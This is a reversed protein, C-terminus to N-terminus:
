IAASGQIELALRRVCSKTPPPPEGDYEWCNGPRHPREETLCALQSMLIGQHQPPHEEEEKEQQLGGSASSSSSSIM